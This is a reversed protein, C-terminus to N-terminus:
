WRRVAARGSATERRARTSAPGLSPPTREGALTRESSLGICHHCYTPPALQRCGFALAAGDLAALLVGHHVHGPVIRDRVQFPRALLQRGFRLVLERRAAAEIALVVGPAVLEVRLAVGRRVDPLSRERHRVRGGVAIRPVDGTM